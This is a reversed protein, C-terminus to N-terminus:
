DPSFTGDGSGAPVGEMQSALNQDETSVRLNGIRQTKM